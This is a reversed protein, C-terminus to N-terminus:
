RKQLCRTKQHTKSRWIISRGHKLMYTDLMCSPPDTFPDETALTVKIPIPDSSVFVKSPWVDPTSLNLPEVQVEPEVESFKPTECQRNESIDSTESTDAMARRFFWSM